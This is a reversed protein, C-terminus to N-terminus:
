TWAHSHGLKLGFHRAVRQLISPTAPHTAIDEDMVEASADANSLTGSALTAWCFANVQRADLGTHKTLAPVSWSSRYLLAALSLSAVDDPVGGLDPWRSLRYATNGLMPLLHQHRRCAAVLFSELSRSVLWEYEHEQAVSPPDSQWATDLLRSQAALLDSMSPAHIRGARHRLLVNINGHTALVDGRHQTAQLCIALLGEIHNAPQLSSPLLIDQLTKAIAAAPAHRDLRRLSAVPVLTDGQSFALTQVNRRLAIEHALRGYGSELDIILLHCPKGNWAQVEVQLQSAALLGCALSLRLELEESLGAMAIQINM